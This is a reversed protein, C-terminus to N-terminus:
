RHIEADNSALNVCTSNGSCGNAQGIEQGVRINNSSNHHHYGGASVQQPIAFVVATVAAVTLVAAIALTTNKHNV